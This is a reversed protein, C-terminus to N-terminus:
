STEDADDGNDDAYTELEKFQRELARYVANIDLARDTRIRLVVLTGPFSADRVIAADRSGRFVAGYGSRVLLEGGNDALLNSTVWLGFGSNREPTSTVRAKLATAIATLDDQIHAYDPNKNLSARVGIGVDAIAIEMLPKSRLAQAVAFGGHDTSAHFLVNECIEDLAIHLSGRALADIDCHESVLDALEQRVEPYNKPSDFHRCERFGIAKKRKFDEKQEVGYYLVNLFNMRRLYRDIGRATPMIVMSGTEVLQMDEFRRMGAVLIALAAPSIFTLRSLDLELVTPSHLQLLPALDRIVREVTGFHYPGTLTITTTEPEPV